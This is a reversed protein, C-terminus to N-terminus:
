SQAEVEAALEAPPLYASVGIVPKAKAQAPDGSPWNGKEAAQMVRWAQECLSQTRTEIAGAGAAPDHVRWLGSEHLLLNQVNRAVRRTFANPMGQNFSFPLVSLSDAGGLGAGFVAAVGRLINSHADTASLMVRSTEGHLSLPTDPLGSARLVERWLIRAARFKAMTAFMDQTAALTISVASARQADALFDLKRLASIATALAAGLEEGDDLGGAHFSRGDGRMLAGTFGQAHVLKALDPDHLGHDVALRAPDLPLRGILHRVAEAGLDGGENRLSMKHLPLHELAAAQAPSPIVLGDVGNALDEEAQHRAKVLDHLDIRAYVRWPAHQPREARPGAQRQFLAADSDFPAGKTAKAVRKLWDEASAQPFNHMRSFKATQSSCRLDAKQSLPFRQDRPYEFRM